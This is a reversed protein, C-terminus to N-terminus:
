PNRLYEKLDPICASCLHGCGTERSVQEFSKGEQAMRRAFERFALQACECHLMARPAPTVDRICAAM